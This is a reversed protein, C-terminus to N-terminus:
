LIYTYLVYNCPQWSLVLDPVINRELIISQLSLDIVAWGNEFICFIGKYVSIAQWGLIRTQRILIITIFIHTKLM